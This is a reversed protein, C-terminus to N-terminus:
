SMLFRTMASMSRVLCPLLLPGESGGTGPPTPAPTQALTAKLATQDSALHDFSADTAVQLRLSLDGTAAADEVRTWLVVSTEKPDGSAVSQPFFRTDTTFKEGGGCGELLTSAAGAGAVVVVSKLISRRSPHNPM